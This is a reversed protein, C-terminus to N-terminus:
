FRFVKIGNGELSSALDENMVIFAIHKSNIYALEKENFIDWAKCLNCPFTLKICEALKAGKPLTKNVISVALSKGCGSVGCLVFRSEFDEGHSDKQIKLKKLSRINLICDKLTTNIKNHTLM